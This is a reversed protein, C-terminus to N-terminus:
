TLCYNLSTLWFNEISKVFRAFESLGFPKSVYLNAGLAYSILMDEPAQSSILVIIPLNGLRCDDKLEELVELGGKKPMNLDLLMLDPKVARHYSPERRLYALAEVGDRVVHFNFELQSEAFAEKTLDIDGADDEVLLIEIQKTSTKM